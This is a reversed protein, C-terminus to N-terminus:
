LQEGLFTKRCTRCWYRQRNSERSRGYRVVKDPTECNVCPPMEGRGRSRKGPPKRRNRQNWGRRWDYYPTGARIKVRVGPTLGAFTGFELDRTLAWRTCDQFLPCKLCLSQCAELAEVSESFFLEWKGMCMRRPDSLFDPSPRGRVWLPTTM